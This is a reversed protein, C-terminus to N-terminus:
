GIKLQMLIKVLYLIHSVTKQFDTKRYGFQKKCILEEQDFFIVMLAVFAAFGTLEPNLVGVILATSIVLGKGLSM